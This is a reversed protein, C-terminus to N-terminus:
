ENMGRNLMQRELLDVASATTGDRRGLAQLAGLGGAAYAAVARLLNQLQAASGSDFHGYAGGSLRCLERLGARAIPDQGEQFAFLPVNLLGLRGAKQTLVDLSEELCDGVYVVCSLPKRATEQLAHDLVRALQTTGAACRIGGMLGLIEAGEAHWHSSHFEQFGRFYCLQVSLGGLASAETFMQAQLQSASDWTSQRSATADLAFLLRADGSAVPLKAVEALFSSV